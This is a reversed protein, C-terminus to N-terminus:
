GASASFRLAVVTGPSAAEVTLEGGLRHTRARLSTLGRGGSRVEAPDFGRGYDRVRVEIVRDPGSPGRLAFDIRHTGAHRLANAFMEQLARLVQLGQEATVPLPAPPSGPAAGEGVSWELEIGAASCRSEMRGRLEALSVDFPRDEPDLSDVILRLDDLCSELGQLLREDDIRRGRLQIILGLLQSGVGDHMDGLIRQREIARNALVKAEESARRIAENGGIVMANALIVVLFGGFRVSEAAETSIDTPFDVGGRYLGYLITIQAASLLSWAVAARKGCAIYSTIPHFFAWVVAPSSFGGTRWAVVFTVAWTIGILAHAATEIPIGRRIAPATLVLGVVIACIAAGSIPSGYATYLVVSLGSFVIGMWGVVIGVRIRRLRDVDQEAPPVFRDAYALLRESLM